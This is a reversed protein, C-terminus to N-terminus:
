MLWILEWNVSFPELAALWPHLRVLAELERDEAAKEADNGDEVGDSWFRSSRERM